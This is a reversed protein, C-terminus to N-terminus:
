QRNDAFFNLMYCAFSLFTVYMKNAALHDQSMRVLLRDYVAEARLALARILEDCHVEFM